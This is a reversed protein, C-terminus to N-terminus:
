PRLRPCADGPSAYIRALRARVGDPHFHERAFDAAAAGLRRALDPGDILRLVSATQVRPDRRATLLGTAADRVLERVDRTGCAVMPLAASMAAALAGVGCDRDQLFVAIDAAALADPAEFRDATLFVEADYGTTHAFFRVHKEVPGSGPLMLRVHDLIQRLIGHVWSAYKHGASRTMEAPALLLVDRDTLGLLGRTRCRRRDRDDIPGAAPGLVAVAEAPLPRALLARRSTETPVTVVTAPAGRRRSLPPASPDWADATVLSVVLRAGRVRAMRRAASVVGLSWAHVVTAEPALARAERAALAGPGLPRRVSVVGLRRSVGQPAPGLSVVTDDECALLALQDLLDRPTAADLVHLVSPMAPMM